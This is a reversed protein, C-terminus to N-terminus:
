HVHIKIVVSLYNKCYSDFGGRASQSKASLLLSSLHLVCAKKVSILAMEARVNKMNNTFFCISSQKRHDINEYAM